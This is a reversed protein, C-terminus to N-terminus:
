QDTEGGAEEYSSNNITDDAGDDSEESDKSQKVERGKKVSPGAPISINNISQSLQVM